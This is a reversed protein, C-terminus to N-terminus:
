ASIPELVAYVDKDNIIRYKDSGEVDLMEGAYQRFLVRDGVACRPQGGKRIEDDWAGAAIDLVTGRTQALENRKVMDDTFEILGRKTAVPDVKVLLTWGAV